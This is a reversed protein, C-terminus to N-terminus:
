IVFALRPKKTTVQTFQVAAVLEMPLSGSTLFVSVSKFVLISYEKPMVLFEASVSLKITFKMGNVNDVFETSLTTTLKAVVLETKSSKTSVVASLM